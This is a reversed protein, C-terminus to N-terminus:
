CSVMEEIVSSLRVTDVEDEHQFDLVYGDEGFLPNPGFEEIVNQVKTKRGNIFKEDQDSGREAYRRKREDDSVYLHIIQIEWGNAQAARFVKSSTLRDGEFLVIENDATELFQIFKPQVAMSLRDTGSFTEGEEYKGIVRINDSIHSDVLDVPRETQWQRSEMWKRMATSKGTGPIGVIGILKKM